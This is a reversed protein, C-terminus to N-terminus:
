TVELEAAKTKSQKAPVIRYRYRLVKPARGIQYKRPMVWLWCSLENPQLPGIHEQTPKVRDGNIIDVAHDFFRHVMTGTAVPFGSGDHDIWDSWQPKPFPM